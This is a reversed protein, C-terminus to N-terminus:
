LAKAYISVNAGDYEIQEMFRWGRRELLRTASSTGCYIHRYGRRQAEEELARFLESGIGRGRHAPHVMAAAAWPSLHSRSAVSESKLAAIGCIEGDLFAVMGVPLGAENAYAALDRRADGPGGPGYYSAWETEFWQRLVPLSEPHDALYAIRLGAAM